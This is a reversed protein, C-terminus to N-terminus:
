GRGGQGGGAGAPPGADVPPGVEAPPGADVPPGVEAPPGAHSPPVVEAPPGAHAPPGVEAPPGAHAPPGVEAPPGAHSPPVVEGSQRARSTEDEGPEEPDDAREPCETARFEAFARAEEARSRGDEPEEGAFPPPGTCEFAPEGDEEEVPEEEVADGDPCQTARFEAFARADESRSGGDEPREGAFSPPGTCEFAPEGDEEEVPEEEVADEERDSDEVPVIADDDRGVPPTPLEVPPVEVPRAAAAPGPDIEARQAAGVGAVLLTGVLAAAVGGSVVRPGLRAGASAGLADLHAAAVGPDVDHRGFSRLRRQLDAEDNM